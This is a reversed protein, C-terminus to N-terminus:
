KILNPINPVSFNVFEACIIPLLMKFVLYKCNFQLKLAGKIILWDLRIGVYTKSLVRTLQRKGSYGKLM